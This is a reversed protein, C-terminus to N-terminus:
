MRYQNRSFEEDPRAKSSLARRRNEAAFFENTRRHNESRRDYEYRAQERRPSRERRSYPRHLQHPLVKKLRRYLFYKLASTREEEQPHELLLKNWEKYHISVVKFGHAELMMDREQTKRTQSGDSRFHYPGDVEIAVKIGDKPDAYVIDILHQIGLHYYAQHLKQASHKDMLSKLHEYVFIELQSTEAENRRMMSKVVEDYQGPSFKEHNSHYTTVLESTESVTLDKRLMQTSLFQVAEQSLETRNEQPLLMKMRSTLYLCSLTEEKYFETRCLTTVWREVRKPHLGLAELSLHM